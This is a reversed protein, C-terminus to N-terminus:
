ADESYSYDYPFLDSDDGVDTFILGRNRVLEVMTAKSLEEVSTLPDNLSKKGDVNFHFKKSRHFDRRFETRWQSNYGWGQSLDRYPRDKRRYTWYLTSSEAISKNIHKSGGEVIVGARSYSMDGLMLCPWAYDTLKVQADENRSAHVSLIEHFFPHYVDHDVVTFGLQEHFRQFDDISLSPGLYDTGDARGSQFRLLMISTVRSLAYLRCIDECTANGWDNMSRQCLEELWVIQETNSNLWPLLEDAYADRGRHRCLASFLEVLPLQSGFM